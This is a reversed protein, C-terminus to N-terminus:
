ANAPPSIPAHGNVGCGHWLGVVATPFLVVISVISFLQAAMGYSGSPGGSGFSVFFWIATMAILLAAFLVM